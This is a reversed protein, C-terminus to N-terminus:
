GHSDDHDDVDCLGSVFGPAPGFIEVFLIGAVALM